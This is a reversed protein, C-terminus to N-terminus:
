PRLGVIKGEDLQPSFRHRGRRFLTESTDPVFHVVSTAWRLHLIMKNEQEGCAITCGFKSEPILLGELKGYEEGGRGKAPIDEETIYGQVM